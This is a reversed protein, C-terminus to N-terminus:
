EQQATAPVIVLPCPAHHALYASTSGLLLGVFGGHGRTGVVLLDADKAAERLAQSPHGHIARVTIPPLDTHRNQLVHLERELVAAASRSMVSPDIGIGAEAAMAPQHWAHVLDISDTPQAHTVAWELARRADPSGDVGVIIRDGSSGTNDTQDTM